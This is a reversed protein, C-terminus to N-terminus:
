DEDELWERGAAWTTAAAERIEAVLDDPVSDPNGDERPNYHYVYLRSAFQPFPLSSEGEYEGHNAISTVVGHGWNQEKDRNPNFFYVRWEGEPDRAVRQISVAHWGVFEGNHDTIAVGCPQAYVLDRGGNYEPHYSAFFERIFSDFNRVAGSSEHIAAAFGRHVWWGHLEPNVWRHGDEGRGITRRSMEMYIRDIHPTLVLSVPDLETHLETALGFTLEGSRIEHGEFHMVLENDRAACAILELLYGVDNQSWLSVARASQCTPNHGQDVGRPQGLVSLTGALLLVNASPTLELGSAAQLDASVQEDIPLVMLRRLGPAVPRFFLIGRELVGHLGYVCRATEPWVAFRILEEVLDRHEEYSAYGPTSLWLAEPVLEPVHEVFFRLLTAHQPSVLGTRRMSDAFEHAEAELADADLSELARRYGDPDRHKRAITTPGTLGEVFLRALAEHEDALESPEAPLSREAARLIDEVHSMMIPRQLLVREAEEALTALIGHPGLRELLYRFLRRIRNAMPVQRERSAETARPYLLDLNLALVSELFRRADEATMTGHEVRGEAIALLRLESLIELSANLGGGLLTGRVLNSSLHEPQDWDSGLFMGAADFRPALEYLFAIGEESQLLRPVASLARSQHMAKAFPRSEELTQLTSEFAQARGPDFAPTDVESQHQALTPDDSRQAAYIM